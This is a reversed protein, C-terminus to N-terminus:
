LGSPHESLLKTVRADDIKNVLRTGEHLDRLTKSLSISSSIAMLVSIALFARIWPDVPAYLLGIATASVSVGFAIWTQAVWAPSHVPQQPEYSMPRDHAMQDAVADLSARM